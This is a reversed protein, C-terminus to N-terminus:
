PKAGVACYYPQAISLDGDQQATQVANQWEDIEDPSLTARIRALATELRPGPEIAALRPCLEVNKLRAQRMRRALSADACGGEAVGGAAVKAAKMTIEDRVPVHIWWPMDVSRVIIAVHGSPRMVRVIERLMRDADGEELVTVCLTLDFENDHLPLHEAHGERLEISDALEQENVLARAEGLLYRNIDVGVISNAGATHRALWRLVTGGGCGVELVRQGPQLDAATVLDRLMGQYWVSRAREELQAVMGLEAGGLTITCVHQSLSDILPEWQSPALGLPLLVLPPGEGSVEYRIGAVSGSEAAVTVAPLNPARRMHDLLAAGIVDARDAIVDSWSADVYETLTLLRAEPVLLSARPVVQSGPGRDGHVLLLRPGLPALPNPDLNGPCVLTLTAIASPHETVFGRYDQAGNGALHAREIGLHAFLRQLREQITM